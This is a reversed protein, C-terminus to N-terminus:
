FGSRLFTIGTKKLKAWDGKLNGASLVEYCFLWYRGMDVEMLRKAEKKLPKLETARTNNQNLKLYYLWTMLLLICDGREIVWQIDLKDM